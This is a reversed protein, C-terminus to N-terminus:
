GLKLNEEGIDLLYVTGKSLGLLGEGVWSGRGIGM